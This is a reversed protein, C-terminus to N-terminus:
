GPEEAVAVPEPWREWPAFHCAASQAPAVERLAPAQGCREAAYPCRAPVLLGVDTDIPMHYGHDELTATPIVVVLDDRQALERLEPRTHEEYHLRM